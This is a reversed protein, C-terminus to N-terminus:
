WPRQPDLDIPSAIAEFIRAELHAPATEQCKSTLVTRIQLQRNYNGQCDPCEGLHRTIALSRWWTLQGQAHASAHFLVEECHM